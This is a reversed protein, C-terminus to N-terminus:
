LWYSSFWLKWMNSKDLIKILEADVYDGIKKIRVEVFDGSATYPVFVTEGDYIGSGNGEYTISDIKLTIVENIEM